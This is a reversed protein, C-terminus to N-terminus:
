RAGRLKDAVALLAEVLADRTVATPTPTPADEALNRRRVLEHVEDPAGAASFTRGWRAVEDITWYCNAGDDAHASHYGDDDVGWSWGEPLAWPDKVAAAAAAPPALVEVSRWLSRRFADDSPGAWPEAAVPGADMDLAKCSASITEADIIAAARAMSAPGIAALASWLRNRQRAVDEAARVIRAHREASEALAEDRVGRVYAVLKAADEASVEIHDVSIRVTDNDDNM